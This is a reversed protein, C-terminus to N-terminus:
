KEGGDLEFEMIDWDSSFGVQHKRAARITLIAETAREMTSFVGRVVDHPEEWGCTEVLVFVSM